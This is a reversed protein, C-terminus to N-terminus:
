FLLFIFYACVFKSCDLSWSCIDKFIQMLVFSFLTWVCSKFFEITFCFSVFHLWVHKVHIWRSVHCLIICTWMNPFFHIECLISFNFMSLFIHVLFFFCSSLAVVKLLLALLLIFIQSCSIYNINACNNLYSYQPNVQILTPM